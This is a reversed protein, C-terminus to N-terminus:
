RDRVNFVSNLNTHDGRVLRRAVHASCATAHIHLTTSSIDVPGIVSGIQYFMDACSDYDDVDGEAAHVQLGRQADKCAV